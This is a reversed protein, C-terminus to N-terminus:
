SPNPQPTHKKKEGQRDKFFHIKTIISQQKQDRQFRHCVQTTNSMTM